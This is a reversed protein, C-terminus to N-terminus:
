TCKIHSDSVVLLNFKGNHNTKPKVSPQLPYSNNQANVNSGVCNNVDTNIFIGKPASTKCGGAKCRM